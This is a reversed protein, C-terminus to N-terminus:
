HNIKDYSIVGICYLELYVSSVSMLNPFDHKCTAFYLSNAIIIDSAHTPTGKKKIFNSRSM